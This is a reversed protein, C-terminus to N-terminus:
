LDLKVPEFVKRGFRSVTVPARPSPNRQPSRSIPAAIVNHKTIDINPTPPYGQPVENCAVEDQPMEPEQKVEASKRLHRRNRRLVSGSSTEVTYSRKSVEKQVTGQKWEKLGQTPAIRVIDGSRLPKLDKANRNYYFAQKEKMAELKRPVSKPIQPKLLTAKTPLQTQTRRGMLRQAPSSEMLQTPTNRFDLVALYPDTESLKALRMLRKATKVAQEAKGNSQQYAPSSTLHEFEWESAFRDFESSSFQPGNDSVVTTPIGYRAFQARLMRIVTSSKTDTLHDVEWFNSYYDVTILYDKDHITFLDCGVKSWPREPVDHSILTEKQQRNEYTRCTECRSIHDGIEANM